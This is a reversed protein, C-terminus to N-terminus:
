KPTAKSATAAVLSEVFKAVKSPQGSAAAEAKVRAFAHGVVLLKEFTQEGLSSRLADDILGAFSFVQEVGASVAVASLLTRALLRMHEHARSGDFKLAAFAPSAYFTPVCDSAFKVPNLQAPTPSADAGMQMLDQVFASRDVPDAYAPARTHADSVFHEILIGVNKLGNKHLADMRDIMTQEDSARARVAAADDDNGRMLRRMKQASHPAAGGDDAGDPPPTPARANQREAAAADEAAAAILAYWDAAAYKANEIAILRPHMTTVITNGDFDLVEVEDQVDDDVHVEDAVRSANERVSVTDAFFRCAKPHVLMALAAPSTEKILPLLRKEASEFLAARVTSYLRVEGEDRGSDGLVDLLNRAVIPVFPATFYTTGEIQRGAHAIMAFLKAVSLCKPVVNSPPCAIPDGNYLVKEFLHLSFMVVIAPFIHAFRRLQPEIMHWRTPPRRIPALPAVGLTKLIKRLFQRRQESKNFAANFRDILLVLERLDKVAQVADNVVLALVHEICSGTRADEHDLVNSYEFNAGTQDDDDDDDGDGADDLSVADLVARKSARAADKEEEVEPADVADAGDLALALLGDTIEGRAMASLKDKILKSAALANSATDTTTTYLLQTPGTAAEIVRAVTVAINHATHADHITPAGILTSKLEFDETVYSMNVGVICIKKGRGVWIDHQCSAGPALRLEAINKQTVAQYARDLIHTRLSERNLSKSSFNPAVSGLVHRLYPDSALRFPLTNAFFFAGFRLCDNLALTRADTTFRTMPGAKVASPPGTAVKDGHQARYCDSLAKLQTAWEDDSKEVKQFTQNLRDIDHHNQFHKAINGKHPKDGQVGSKFLFCGREHLDCRLHLEDNYWVISLFAMYPYNAVTYTLSPTFQANKHVLQAVEPQAQAAGAAGAGTSLFLIAKSWMEICRSVGDEPARAAQEKQKQQAEELKAM